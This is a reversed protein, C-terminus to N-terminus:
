VSPMVWGNENCIDCITAVEWSQYNSIGLKEFYGEQYLKNVESLTEKFPVTRDPSHLYWIHVKPVNLAKLSSMLGRRLDEPTHHYLHISSAIDPNAASPFLKTALKMGTLDMRGLFEESSGNGYIRATDIDNYGYDRFKNVMQQAEEITHVKTRNDGLWTIM